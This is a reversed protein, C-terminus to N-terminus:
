RKLTVNRDEEWVFAETFYEVAMENLDTKEDRYRSTDEESLRKAVQQEGDVMCRINLEGNGSPYVQVGTIRNKQYATYPIFDAAEGRSKNGLASWQMENLLNSPFKEAPNKMNVNPFFYCGTPMGCDDEAGAPDWEARLRHTLFYDMSNYATTPTIRGIGRQVKVYDIMTREYESCQEILSFFAEPLIMFNSELERGQRVVTPETGVLKVVEEDTLQGPKLDYIYDALIEFAYRKQNEVSYQELGFLQTSWWFSDVILNRSAESLMVDQENMGHQYIDVLRDTYPMSMRALTREDAVMRCKKRNRDLVDQYYKVAIGFGNELKELRKVDKASLKRVHQPKKDVLCRLYKDGSIKETLIELKDIRLKDIKHRVLRDKLKDASIGAEAMACATTGKEILGKSELAEGVKWQLSIGGDNMQYVDCLDFKELFLRQENDTHYPYVDIDRDALIEKLLEGEQEEGLQYDPHEGLPKLQEHAIQSLMGMKHKYTAVQQYYSHLAAVFREENRDLPIVSPSDFNALLYDGRGPRSLSYASAEPLFAVRQKLELLEKLYDPPIGMKAFTKQYDDVTDFMDKVVKGDALQNLVTMVEPEMLKSNDM